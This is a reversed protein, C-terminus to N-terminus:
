PRTCGRCSSPSLLNLEGNNITIHAIPGETRYDIPM